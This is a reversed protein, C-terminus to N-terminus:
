PAPATAELSKANGGGGIFRQGLAIGPKEILHYGAYCAAVLVVISIIAQIVLPQDKLVMFGLRLALLHILYIGYSYTAITHAVRTYASRAADRVVPISVGLVGCFAIRVMWEQRKFMIYVAGMFALDVFIIPLWIWSPLTRAPNRSRRLMWYALVGMLFCPVFELVRLRWLLRATQFPTWVAAGTIGLALLVAMPWSPRNRAVLYCIPLAIYMQLELPLTWLPALVNSKGLLNQVLALNAALTPLSITRYHSAVSAPPIRLAYVVLIVAWALPYIRWARRIYFRTVWHRRSPADDREMSAMLVLATHVFFAQVGAHGMWQTFVFSGFLGATHDVLVFLVALSRLVDLNHEPLITRSESTVRAAEM